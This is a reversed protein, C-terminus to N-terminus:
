PYTAFCKLTHQIILSLLLHSIPASGHLFPPLSSSGAHSAHFAARGIALLDHSLGADSPLVCRNSLLCPHPMWMCPSLWPRHSSAEWFSLFFCRAIQSGVCGWRPLSIGGRLSANTFTFFCSLEITHHRFSNQGKRPIPENRVLLEETISVCQEGFHTVSIRHNNGPLFLQRCKNM